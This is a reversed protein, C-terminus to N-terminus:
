QSITEWTLLTDAEIDRTVLKGELYDLKDAPVGEPYAHRVVKLMKNSLVSGEKIAERTYIARRAGVREPLEALTPRKIGDGLAAELQRIQCVMERFEYVELAYSHDPGFASKNDTLHKEIINAGLAVAGLPVTSGPTHDSYGTPIKFANHMTVMARINSDEFKPPYLSVCHLLAVQDCGSEELITLATEVEGLYALGTSLIVPKGLRGIDKLFSHYTLDGSAVKIIPVNLKALLQLREEDFPASLFDIGLDNSFAKLEYHWEEPLALGELTKWAKHPEWHGNPRWKPNILREVQFSQFKVADAGAEKAGLILHKARELSGDHNSGIEAIIYTPHGEGISRGNEVTIVPKM